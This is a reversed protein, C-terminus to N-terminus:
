ARGAEAVWLGAAWSSGGLIHETECRCYFGISGSGRHAMMPSSSLKTETKPRPEAMQSRIICNNLLFGCSCFCNLSVWLFHTEGRFAVSHWLSHLSGGQAFGQARLKLETRDGLSAHKPHRGRLRPVMAGIGLSVSSVSFVLTHFIHNENRKVSCLKRFASHSWFPHGQHM